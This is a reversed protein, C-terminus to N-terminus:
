VRERSINHQQSLQSNIYLNINIYINIFLVSYQFIWHHKHLKFSLTTLQVPSSIDQM